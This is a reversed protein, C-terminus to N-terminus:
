KTKLLSQKNINKLEKTLIKQCKRLLEEKLVKRFKNKTSIRIM